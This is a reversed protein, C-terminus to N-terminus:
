RITVDLTSTRSLPRSSPVANGLELVAVIKEQPRIGFPLAGEGSYIWEPVTRRVHWPKTRALLLFNQILCCVAAYDEERKHPNSEEEAVIVLFASSAHDPSLHLKAAAEEGAAFVFRWPERLGDNPAWVAVNLLDLVSQQSIASSNTGLRPKSNPVVATWKQEAPTRNRARPAKEFYGINLIGAFREGDKLGIESFFAPTYLLKDTYWLMGLGADWSLLQFNQMLSCVVAYNADGQRPDSAAEAIFVAVTPTNNIQKVLFDIMKGPILRGLASDTVKSLMCESLRKRSEPTSYLICRWQAKEEMELLNVAQHLLNVIVDPPVTTAKYKRISRREMIVKSFDM